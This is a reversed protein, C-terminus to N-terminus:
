RYWEVYMKERKEKGDMRRVRKRTRCKHAIEDHADLFVEITIKVEVKNDDFM